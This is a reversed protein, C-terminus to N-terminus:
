VRIEAGGDADFSENASVIAVRVSNLGSEGESRCIWAPKAVRGKEKGVPSIRLKHFKECFVKRSRPRRRMREAVTRGIAIVAATMKVRMARGAHPGRM